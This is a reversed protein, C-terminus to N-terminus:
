DEKLKAVYELAKTRTDTFSPGPEIDIAGSWGAVDRGQAAIYTMLPDVDAIDVALPVSDSAAHVFEVTRGGPVVVLDAGSRLHGDQEAVLISLVSLLAVLQRKEDQREDFGLNRLQAFSVFASGTISRAIVDRVGQQPPLSGVGNAAAGKGVPGFPDVRAALRDVVTVDKAIIQSSVVRGFRADITNSIEGNIHGVLAGDVVNQAKELDDQAAKQKATSGDDGMEEAKRRVERAREMEAVKKKDGGQSHWWGFLCSVPFWSLLPDAHSPTALRIARYIADDCRDYLLRWHSDAHRHPWDLSTEIVSDDVIVRFLPYDIQEAIAKIAAEFRNAQAGYSSLIVGYSPQDTTHGPLEFRGPQDDIPRLTKGSKENIYGAPPTVPTEPGGAPEYTYGFRLGACLPDQLAQLIRQVVVPTDTAPDITNQAM